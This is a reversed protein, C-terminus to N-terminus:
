LVGALSDNYHCISMCVYLRYLYQFAWSIWYIINKLKSSEGSPSWLHAGGVRFSTRRAKFHFFHNPSPGSKPCVLYFAEHNCQPHRFFKCMLVLYLLRRRQWQPVHSITTYLALHRLWGNAKRAAENMHPTFAEDFLVGLARVTPKSREWELYDVLCFVRRWENLNYTERYKYKLMKRKDDEALSELNGLIISIHNTWLSYLTPQIFHMQFYFLSLWQLLSHVNRFYDHLLTIEVLKCM